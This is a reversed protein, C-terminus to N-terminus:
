GIKEYSSTEIMYVYKDYQNYQEYTHYIVTLNPTVDANTISMPITGTPLELSLINNLVGTITADTITTTEPTDLIYYVTDGVTLSGSTSIYDTTITEGDYSDIKGIVKHLKWVDGDNYIYDKQSNVKALEIDGLDLTYNTGDITITSVGTMTYITAPPTDQECVGNITITDIRGATDTISLNFSDGTGALPTYSKPVFYFVGVEGTEPLSDVVTPISLANASSGQIGQPIGFNFIANTATGTNTVYAPTGAPLTEVSGLTITPDTGDAGTAGTDGKPLVLNLVQNPSTGTITASPSVGSSVTGITLTNNQGNSGDTGDLVEATTTGNEDTISITAVNGTKSVTAIPSFGAPGQPGTLADDVNEIAPIGLDVIINDM